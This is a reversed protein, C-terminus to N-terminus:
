HGNLERYSEGSFPDTRLHSCEISSDLWPKHGVRRAMEFFKIDETRLLEMAFYPFKLGEITCKMLRRRWQGRYAKGDHEHHEGDKIEGLIDDKHLTIIGGGDVQWVSFNNRIDEFVSRHTLICGMGTADVPILEGKEWHRQKDIPTYGGNYIYYAIPPHPPNKGFYLGSVLTRGSSLLRQLAGIPVVTDADIWFLWEADKKLFEDVIINRNHDTAMSGAVVIDVVEVSNHLEAMHQAFQNWWISDQPGYVPVGVCVRPKQAPTVLLPTGVSVSQEIM